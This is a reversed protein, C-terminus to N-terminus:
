KPRRKKPGFWEDLAGQNTTHPPEDGLVKRVEEEGFLEEIKLLLMMAFQVRSIPTEQGPEIGPVLGTVQTRTYLSNRARIELDRGWEDKITFKPYIESIEM